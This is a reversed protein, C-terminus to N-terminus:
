SSISARSQAERAVEDVIQPWQAAAQRVFARPAMKSTGYEVHQAYNAGYTAYIVDDLRASAIVLSIQGGDYTFNGGPNPRDTVNAPQNLAGQLSARLFGTDVPVNMQMTSVVRQAAENRVALLRQETERCWADVQAEFSLGQVAM